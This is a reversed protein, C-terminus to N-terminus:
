CADIDLLRKAANCNLAVPGVTKETFVLYRTGDQCVALISGDGIRAARKVSACSQENTDTVQKAVTAPDGAPAAAIQLRTGPIARYTTEPGLPLASPPSSSIQEAGAGGEPVLTNSPPGCQALIGILM